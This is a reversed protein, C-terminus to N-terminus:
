IYTNFDVFNVVEKFVYTGNEGKAGKKGIPGKPGSKASPYVILVCNAGRGGKGGDGGPGGKGGSGGNVEIKIYNPIPSGKKVLLTVNGGRGGSGGTKGQGGSKGISPSKPPLCSANSGDAGKKGKSGASGTAGNSIISLDEISVHGLYLNINAGNKGYSTGSGLIKCNGILNSNNSSIKIENNINNVTISSNPRMILNETKIEILNEGTKIVAGSQIEITNAIIATTGKPAIWEGSIKLNEYRRQKTEIIKLTM